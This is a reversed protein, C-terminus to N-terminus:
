TLNIGRLKDTAPSQAIRCTMFQTVMEIFQSRASYDFLAHDANEIVRLNIDDFKSLSKGTRGFYTYLKELGPDNASYVLEIQVGRGILATFWRNVQGISTQFGTVKELFLTVKNLINKWPRTCLAIVISVIAVEGRIIRRWAYPQSIAKTYFSLPRRQRKNEVKLSSGTKWAFHQTNVMILGHVRDDHLAAHFANFAGSCIGVLIINICGLNRMFTIAAQVDTSYRSAYPNVECNDTESDGFGAFDMRLSTVGTQALHRALTTFVRGDGTHRGFGTNLMIVARGDVPLQCPICLIGFISDKSQFSVAKERFHLNDSVTDISYSMLSKRDQTPQDLLKESPLIQCCWAMVQEFSEYPVVSAISDELYKEYGRFKEIAVRCGQLKLNNVLTLMVPEEQACMILINKVSSKFVRLDVNSIMRTTEESLREGLVDLHTTKDVSVSHLNAEHWGNARLRLERIYTRGVIVPALCGVGVVEPIDKSSLLALAAGFRLGILVIEKSGSINILHRTASLISVKWAEFQGPDGEVGISDGTSLYDFRLVHHGELALKEALKRWGHHATMNEHGFAACLVIGTAGCGRHFWGFCGDFATPIM